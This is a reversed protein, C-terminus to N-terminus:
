IQEWISVSISNFIDFQVINKHIVSLAIHAECIDLKTIKAARVKFSRFPGLTTRRDPRGHPGAWLYDHFCRPIGCSINPRKSVHYTCVILAASHVCGGLSVENWLDYAEDITTIEVKESGTGDWIAM